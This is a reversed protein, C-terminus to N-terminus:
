AQQLNSQDPIRNAGSRYPSAALKSAVGEIGMSYADPTAITVEGDIIAERVPLAKAAEVILHQSYLFHGGADDLVRQLADKRALL